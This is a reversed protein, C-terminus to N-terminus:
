SYGDTDDVGNPRLIDDARAGSSDVRCGALNGYVPLSEFEFGFGIDKRCEFIALQQTGGCITAGFYQEAGPDKKTEARM